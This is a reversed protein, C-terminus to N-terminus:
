TPELDEDLPIQVLADMLLGGVMPSSGMFIVNVVNCEELLALSPRSSIKTSHSNWGLM